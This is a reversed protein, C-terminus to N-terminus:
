FMRTQIAPEKKSFVRCISDRIEPTVRDGEKAIGWLTTAPLANAVVEFSRRPWYVMHGQNSFGRIPEGLCGLTQALLTGSWERGDANFLEVLALIVRQRNLGGIADYAEWCKRDIGHRLENGANRYEVPKKKCKSDVYARQKGTVDFDPLITDNGQMRPGKRNVAPLDKLPIYLMGSAGFVNQWLREGFEGLPEHGNQFRWYVWENTVNSM